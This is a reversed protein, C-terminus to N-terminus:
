KAPTFADSFFADSPLGKEIFAAKAADIMLPSGCAYVQYQEFTEFDDCVASHVFGKRGDWTEEGSLVPVYHVNSYVQEISQFYDLYFGDISPMGWYIYLKRKDQKAILDEVIAKIPAIGTGGAILILPLNSDRVFFTGKPGEIRMLENEKLDNFILESMKGGEVNRIHLEVFSSSSPANGISYSRKVGKFCLDVYQGALYDLTANPPFRFSLRVIDDTVYDVKSVKCPLTQENINALEPYYTAEIIADSVAKSQCTLIRGDTVVEGHENEISGSVVQASCVGCEGTKCSHELHISEALADSLINTGSKYKVGAPRIEISFKKM